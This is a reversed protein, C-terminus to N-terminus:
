PGAWSQISIAKGRDKWLIHFALFIILKISYQGCKIVCHLECRLFSFQLINNTTSIEVNYAITPDVTKHVMCAPYGDVSSAHSQEAKYGLRKVTTSLTEPSM